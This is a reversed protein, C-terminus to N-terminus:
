SFNQAVLVIATQLMDYVKNEINKHLSAMLQLRSLTELQVSNYFRHVVMAYHNMTLLMYNLFNKKQLRTDFPLIKNPYHKFKNSTM